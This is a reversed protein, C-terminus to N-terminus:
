LVKYYKERGQFHMFNTNDEIITTNDVSYDMADPLFTRSSAPNEVKMSQRADGMILELNVGRLIARNLYTFYTVRGPPPLSFNVIKQDIEYYTMHQFPRAYSVMTGTGLGITAFPPESWCHSIADLPLTTAGLNSLMGMI